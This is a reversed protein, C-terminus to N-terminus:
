TSGVMELSRPSKSAADGSALIRPFDSAPSEATLFSDLKERGVSLHEEQVEFPSREYLELGSYNSPDVVYVLSVKAGFLAAARKVYPAIAVCSPSFDVPYLINTILAM